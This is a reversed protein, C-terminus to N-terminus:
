LVHSRIKFVEFDNILGLMVGSLEGNWLVTFPWTLDSREAWIRNGELCFSIEWGRPGHFINGACSYYWRTAFIARSLKLIFCFGVGM